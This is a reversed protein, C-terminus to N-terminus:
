APMLAIVRYTGRANFQEAAGTVSYWSVTTGNWTAIMHGLLNGLPYFATQGPVFITIHGAIICAITPLRPFTFSSPHDKGYQGTGQYTATWLQCNGKKGLATQLAADGAARAAAEAKLAADIKANDANFDEMLVRASKEWQSLQYNPTQNSPM